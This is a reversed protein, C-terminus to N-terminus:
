VGPVGAARLVEALAAAGADPAHRRADIGVSAAAAVNDARDDVFVVGQPGRALADLIASFYGPDPKAVGLDCSFFLGDFWQAYGLDLMLDRRYVHQNTALYCAVGASRVAGVVDLAAPDLVINNWQRVADPWRSTDLGRRRLLGEMSQAITERGELAPLEAEWLEALFGAPDVPDLSALEAVWGPGSHQLLGDADFLVVEVSM